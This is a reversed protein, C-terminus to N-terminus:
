KGGRLAAQVAPPMYSASQYIPAANMAADFIRQGLMQYDVRNSGMRQLLENLSMQRDLGLRQLGLQLNSALREGDIGLQKSQLDLQAKADKNQYVDEHAREIADNASLVDRQYGRHLEGQGFNREEMINGAEARYGESGIAGRSRNEAQNKFLNHRMGRDMEDARANFEPDLMGRLQEMMALRNRLLPDMRDLAGRQLGLSEGKVGLSRTDFGYNANLGQGQLDFGQGQLRGQEGLLGYQQNLLSMTPANRVTAGSLAARFSDEFNNRPPAPPTYTGLPRPTVGLPKADPTGWTRNQLQDKVGGAVGGWLRFPASFASGLADGWGM